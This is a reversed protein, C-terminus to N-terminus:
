GTAAFRMRLTTGSPGSDLDVRDCIQHIIWLGRGDPADPAPKRLGALPDTIVGQDCIEAVFEGRDRWMRLWGPEGGHILTNTAAEDVALVVDPVRDPAVHLRAERRVRRRLGALDRTIPSPFIATPAGSSTLNSITVSM